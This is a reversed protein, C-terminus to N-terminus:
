SAERLDDPVPRLRALGPFREEVAARVRKAAPVSPEAYFAPLEGRAILKDAAEALADRFAKEPPRKGLTGALTEYVPRGIEVWRDMSPRGSAAALSRDSEEDPRASADRDSHASAESQPREDQANSALPGSADTEPQSRQPKSKRANSREAPTETRADDAAALVAGDGLYMQMVLILEVVVAPVAGTAVLFVHGISWHTAPLLAHFEINCGVTMALSAAACWHAIKAGRHARPVSMATVIATATLIDVSGPLAWAISRPWGNMVALGYLAFFSLIAGCVLAAGGGLRLAWRTFAPVTVPAVSAANKAAM